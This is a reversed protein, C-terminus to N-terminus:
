SIPSAFDVFNSVRLKPPPMNSSRYHSLADLECVTTCPIPHQTFVFLTCAGLVSSSNAPISNGGGGRSKDDNRSDDFFVDTDYGRRGYQLPHVGRM